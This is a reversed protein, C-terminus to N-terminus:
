FPVDDEEKAEANVSSSIWEDTWKTATSPILTGDNDFLRESIKITTISREEQLAGNKIRVRKMTRKSFCLFGDGEWPDMEIMKFRFDDLLSILENKSSFFCKFSVGLIEGIAKFAPHNLTLIEKIIDNNDKNKNSLLVDVLKNVTSLSEKLEHSLKIQEISSYQKILRQFLGSLQERLIVGIDHSTEFPFIPNGKSLSYIEELFEFIKKDSVSTFNVGPLSKNAKYFHFEQSVPKDLFIYIQKGEDHATKLEKQTISYNGDSSVTGFVGGIICVLVDCNSIERYCESEPSDESGFPINGVEFRVPEHGLERVQRDLDARISKLDYYTSSIFIKLRAM